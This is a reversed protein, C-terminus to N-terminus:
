NNIDKNEDLLKQLQEAEGEKMTYANEPGPFVRNYIDDVYEKIAKIIIDKLNAYKKAYTPIKDSFGLM